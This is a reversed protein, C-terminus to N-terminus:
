NKGMSLVHGMYIKENCKLIITHGFGGTFFRLMKYLKYTYVWIAMLRGFNLEWHLFVVIKTMINHWNLLYKVKSCYKNDESNIMHAIHTFYKM